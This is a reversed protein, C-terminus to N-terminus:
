RKAERADAATPLGVADVVDRLQSGVGGIEDSALREFRREADVSVQADVVLEGHWLGRVTDFGDLALEIQM